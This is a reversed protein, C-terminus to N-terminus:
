GGWVTSATISGSTLHDRQCLSITTCGCTIPWLLQNKTFVVWLVKPILCEGSIELWLPQLLIRPQVVWYISNNYSLNPIAISTGCKQLIVSKCQFFGSYREFCWWLSICENTIVFHSFNQWIFLLDEDIILTMSLPCRFHTWCVPRLFRYAHASLERMWINWFPPRCIPNRWTSSGRVLSSM